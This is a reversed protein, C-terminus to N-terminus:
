GLLRGLLANPDDPLKGSYLVEGDRLVLLGPLNTIAHKKALGGGTDMVMRARVRTGGVFDSVTARDEQFNVAIVEADTAWRAELSNVKDLIDRCRPSWSAWFVLVKTGRNLDNPSLDPGSFGSLNGQAASPLSTLTVLIALGALAVLLLHRTRM